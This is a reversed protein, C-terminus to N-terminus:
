PTVTVAVGAPRPLSDTEDAITFLRIAAGATRRYEISMNMNDILNVGAGFTAFLIDDIEGLGLSSQHFAARAKILQRFEEDAMRYTAQNADSYRFFYDTPTEGYRPLGPAAAPNADGYRTLEWFPRSLDLGVVFRTLGRYLGLIDLQAGVATDLDFAAAVDFVIGNAMASSIFAEMVARAKPKTRYQVILLDRYYAILEDTTM